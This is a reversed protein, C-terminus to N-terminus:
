NKAKQKVLMKENYWAICNYGSVEGNEDISYKEMASVLCNKNECNYCAREEVQKILKYKEIETLSEFFTKFVLDKKCKEM